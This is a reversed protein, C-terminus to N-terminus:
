ERVKFVCMVCTKLIYFRMGGGVCGRYSQSLMSIHISHLCCVSFKACKNHYVQCIYVVFNPQLCHKILNYKREIEREKEREGEEGISSSIHARMQQNQTQKGKKAIAYLAMRM